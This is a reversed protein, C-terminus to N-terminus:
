RSSSRYAKVQKIAYHPNCVMDGSYYKSAVVYANRQSGKLNEESFQEQECRKSPDNYAAANLYTRPKKLFCDQVCLQPFTPSHGAIEPSCVKVAETFRKEVERLPFACVVSGRTANVDRGRGQATASFAAFLTPEDPLAHVNLDYAQIM